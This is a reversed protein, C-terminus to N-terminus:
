QLIANFLLKYTGHTQARHQTRFAILIAKGKGKKVSVMVAKGAVYEEGILWGSQLVDKEALTVIEEYNESHDSPKIELIPCKNRNHDTWQFVLGNDPMGYGLQHDNNITAWLTSGPCFFKKPELDETINKIRLELAKVAFNCAEGFTLLTGGHEVFDKLAILGKEGIGSRYKEPYMPQEGRNKRWWEEAGEGTILAESDDPLIILDYKEELNGNKIEEDMITKYPFSFQELLWRTWGEDMNGGWYRQYIAVCKRVVIHKEVDPISDLATFDVGTEKAIKTLTNKDSKVIFSGSPYSVGKVLVPEDFREIKIEENMLMNVAKFSDNLRTDFIYGNNSDGNVKGYPIQHKEIEFLDGSPRFNVPVVRVGMFEAITDTASDQPRSPTGDNERTWPGDPYLTQGLLTEVLGSKPQDLPIIYTGKEYSVNEVIIREDSVEIEIGQVLLKSILKHATLNDHQNVPVLYAKINTSESKTIQRLAKNYANWLVTDKNRAAMDLLAWASIKQQEVIDRLRWWGGKWPHPFNTQAKYEPLGRIVGRSDGELQDEHIYLPTALKASASETLMSAINHYNGIWHFGLHGWGLYRADNIIGQKKGQELKYALHAGYWSIERWILPDAHPHIPECYPPVYLRPGYSGMHHHDLYAHPKWERFMIKAMYNSEIMNTMFADRNNDHGTYKHYLWPINVGEYETG